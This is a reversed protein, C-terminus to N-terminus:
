KGNPSVHDSSLWDLKVLAKPLLPCPVRIRDLTMKKLARPMVDEIFSRDEGLPLAALARWVPSPQVYVSKHVVLCGSM